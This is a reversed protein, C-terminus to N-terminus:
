IRVEKKGFFPVLPAKRSHSNGWVSIGTVSESAM